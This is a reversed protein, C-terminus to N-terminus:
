IELRFFTHSARTAVPMKTKAWAPAAPSKWLQTTLYHDARNTNDLLQGEMVGSVLWEIQSLSSPGTNGVAKRMLADALAYVRQSNENSEWWCSYQAPAHCVGRWGKGWWRPHQVRNRIVSAVAVQGEIPERAAEGVVTCIVAVRDTM